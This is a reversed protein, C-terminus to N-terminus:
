LCARLGIIFNQHLRGRELRNVTHIGSPSKAQDARGEEEGALGYVIASVHTQRKEELVVVGLKKLSHFCSGSM